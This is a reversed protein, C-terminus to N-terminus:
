TVAVGRASRDTHIPRAPKADLRAQVLAAIRAVAPQQLMHAHDGPVNEVRVDKVLRSWGLTQDDFLAGTKLQDGPRVLLLAGDYPLSEHEHIAKINAQFVDFIHPGVVAPDDPVIGAVAAQRVFYELQELPSKQRLEELSEAQQGPFLATILPLFDAESLERQGSILGSDLLALMGVERGDAHLHRAVEYAVNGGLSWGLLHIPGTPVASRIATAYDAAMETATTHPPQSGDLGRAQVGFVPRGGAFADALERYCFVTGGAPHICFLPAGTGGIALPVLTSAEAAEPHDLCEALREITPSRFLASLPLTQGTRQQVEAVMRVALMSHGGLEFFDDEIGVPTVELLEEWLEVLLRQSATQPPRVEHGVGSRQPPPAPLAARDLKGQLTLPLDGLLVYASPVMYAPLREQLERKIRPILNLKERRVLPRNTFVRPRTEDRPRGSPAPRAILGLERLLGGPSRKSSGNVTEIVIADDADQCWDVRLSMGKRAAREVLSRPTVSPVRSADVADLVEQLSRRPSSEALERDILVERQVQANAVIRTRDCARSQRAGLRRRSWEHHLQRLPSDFALVADFRFRNLENDGRATKVLTRVERLRDLRPAFLAELNPDVLLEEDHAIRNRVRAEFEAVSLPEDGRRELEVAIAFARQLRLNRLDGLFIRGGPALLRQAGRLVRLLYEESPFYQVISNLVITDFGGSPLEGLDDAARCSLTVKKALEPRTTLTKRLQDLASDLLDVGVYSEVADAIRLLILGTGCGVELVRRPNLERIRGAAADAWSRMQDTPIPRGTIVSTWGAFHNAPDLVVASARQSEDFLRRWNDVQETEAATTLTESSSQQPTIKSIADRNPVVYAILRRGAGDVASDDGDAIVAAQAVEPLSEIVAAIEAPEIRFGRLKIQEDRRGVIELQGDQSWRGLDGTRHMRPPDALEDARPFFPDAVFSARDLDPRRWYGRSVGRGGIHVEGIVGDPVLRGLQDLVYISTNALPRGVAPFGLDSREMRKIAVGVSCETPGYGNFLQHTALWRAALEGSLPAGASLIRRVHPLQAPDLMALTAPTLAVIQVQQRTLERALRRPDLVIDQDIIEICGGAALVPYIDGIAGDFSPSFLHGYRMGPRIGMARAFEAIFNSVARHEIPIGKPVGTSGSTFILYALDDPSVEVRLRHGDDAAALEAASRCSIANLALEALAARIEALRGAPAIIVAPELDTVIAILRALPVQTDVPVFAAGARMAAISTAIQDISRPLYVLVREAPRGVASPAVGALQLGRSIRSAYGDLDAYRLSREGHRIATAAPTRAAAQAFAALLTDADASESQPGISRSLIAVAEADTVLPLAEVNRRSGAVDENGLEASLLAENLLTQLGSAMRAISEARFLSTRYEFHGQFVGDREGLLLTIDFKATGNDVPMPTITLGEAAALSHPANQLVFAAQFLPSHSRDRRKALRGVVREFPVEQHAIAETALRHTEQVLEAFTETGDSQHRIMVTNVFFGILSEVMPETRNAVATGITLDRQGSWRSLLLGFATLLVSYPTVHLTEALRRVGDSTAPSLSTECNAGRFDQVAPRPFDIPLDLTEVAGELAQQWFEIAPEIRAATLYEQQWAAYERYHVDLPRLKLPQGAAAQRYLDALEGLMVAMSWGDSVIHHMVLLIAHQQDALQWHIVRLLPGQALDFPRRSHDAIRSRLEAEPDAHRRLDSSQRPLSLSPLIKRLPQGDILEYTSRLTEHRAVCADVSRWLLEPDLPGDIRAALPLNYFPHNPELQDVFWLRQEAPSLPPTADPTRLPDRSRQLFAALGDPSEFSAAAADERGADSAATPRDQLSADVKAALERLTPHAYIERLPLHAGLRTRIRAFVQAAMLSHGGLQFFDDERSPDADGLVEQWILALSRETPTAPSPRDAANVLEGDASSGPAPTSTSAAALVSQAPLQRYDVKGAPTHPIAALPVLVAPIRPPTLRTELFRRLEAPAIAAQPDPQYYGILRRDVPSRDVVIVAAERIGEMRLMAAEIEGLEIRHGRLKIQRDSRGLFELSGDSLRRVRDGTRYVREGLETPTFRKNTAEPQNWYGRGVGFGGIWLEGPLGEPVDHGQADVIRVTTSDIPHGISIPSRFPWAIEGALSWVTTETPGYVNWLKVGTALLTEALDPHLPEGGCWITQRGRPSWGAALMMRLSSPTAQIVDVHHSRLWNLVADPDDSLSHPAILSTAGTVLPLYLELISIDFSMTTSALMREGARLGPRRAFSKLVNSLNDHGIMVGKPKGTSGSTYILYALGSSTAGPLPAAAADRRDERRSMAQDVDADTLTCVPHADELVQAIMEAPYHPDLPLYAAGAKWTALASIPIGRGRSLNLAVISGPGVGRGRLMRALRNSALELDTFTCPGLRDILALADPTREVQRAFLELVTEHVDHFYEARNAAERRGREGPGSFELKAVETAPQSLGQRLLAVLGDLMQNAFREDLRQSNFAIGLECRALEIGRQGETASETAIPAVPLDAQGERWQCVLATDYAGLTSYASTFDVCNAGAIRLGAPAPPQHLLLHQILPLRDASREPSLRDIIADLPVAAHRLDSRWLESTRAVWQAFNGSSAIGLRVPLTNIFCGVERDQGALDRGAVPVGIVIDESETYRGLLLHWASLLIEFPTVGWQRGRQRLRAILDADLSLQRFRSAALRQEDAAMPGEDAEDRSEPTALALRSDTPASHLRETWHELGARLADPSLEAAAPRLSPHSDLDSTAISGAKPDTALDRALLMLSAGDCVLHHAVLILETVDGPLEVLGARIVPGMALDFREDTLSMRMDCLRQELGAPSEDRWDLRRVEIENAEVLWPRPVGDDDATVRLRLGSHRSPLEAIRRSLRDMDVRGALRLSLEVHLFAQRMELSDLLWFRRQSATLEGPQSVTTAPSPLAPVTIAASQRSQVLREIEEVLQGFRPARFLTDFDALVDFRDRIRSLLSMAALSHGGFDLFHQDDAASDLNLVDCWILALRDAIGDRVTRETKPAPEAAIAPATDVPDTTAPNAFASGRVAADWRHLQILEGRRFEERCQARQLKGSSTKSLSGAAVFMITAVNLQFQQALAGRIREVLEAPNVKRPRLLEQVVVLREGAVETDDGIPESELAFAVGGDVKLAPDVGQVVAEIEHSFYNRGAIIIWDKLRGSVFLEDAHVFGLDGTRLYGRPLIGSREAAAVDGIRAAAARSDYEGDSGPQEASQVQENPQKQDIPQGAFTAITLEPRQWYEESVAVGRVWIEGIRNEGLRELSEPHVILVETQDMPVGCSVVEVFGSAEVARVPNEEASREAREDTADRGESTSGPTTSGPTTAAAWPVAVGSSAHLRDAQFRSARPPADLPKGTIALTAEAMGYAPTFATARFGSDSFRESFRRLTSARIPEAGSIAVRLSSLDLTALAEDRIKRSCLEYGFNPSATTTGRYDSIAQLWALPDQVFSTPSMLVSLRGAYLPLLLGGVLGMDHYPPLWFVCVADRVHYAGYIQLANAILHRHRLVVGRPATTTGSTYQLIALDNDSVAPSRYADALSRDVQDSRIVAQIGMGWLSSVVTAEIGAGTESSGAAVGDSAEGSGRGAGGLAESSTLLIRADADRTIAQLRPLTHRLRFVDLPYVPVAVYGAYLCGFLSCIYDLGPPQAILVRDGPKGQSALAAALGRIRYDLDQYTISEVRNEGPSLFTFAVEDAMREARWKAIDVLNNLRGPPPQDVGSLPFAHKHNMLLTVPYRSSPPVRAWCTREALKIESLPRM